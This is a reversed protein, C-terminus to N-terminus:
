SQPVINSNKGKTRMLYKHLALMNYVKHDGLNFDSFKLTALKDRDARVACVGKLLYATILTYDFDRPVSDSNIASSLPPLYTPLIHPILKANPIDDM